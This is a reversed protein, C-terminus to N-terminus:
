VTKLNRVIRNIADKAEISLSEFQIGVGPPGQLAEEHKRVWAVKGNVTVTDASGPLKFELRVPTDPTHPKSTEIFMGGENINSSFDSFFEDVTRYDVRIVFPSRDFRRRERIRKPGM